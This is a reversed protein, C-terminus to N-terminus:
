LIPDLIVANIHELMETPSTFGDSKLYFLQLVRVMNWHLQKCGRPVLSPRLVERLLTQMSDDIIKRVHVIADEPTTGSNEKMYLIVSNLKGENAERMYGQIDNLLRGCINVLKIINGYDPHCIIEESIKAGVFYLTPLVIPELAISPQANAMYEQLSPTYGSKAWEAEKMMSNLLRYWIERLHKSVDRGQLVYAQEAIQNISNYLASFLIQASNSLYDEAGQDWRRFAELFSRLEEISGGVDFFDDIVTTLVGNKAWVMRAASMEPEFLTAAVSFYCYVLKQRAFKLNSFMGDEFWRELEQLEKQQIAQCLNYDEKALALFFENSVCPLIYSTKGIWIDDVGYQKIYRRSELRELSACWPFRLAYEVVEGPLDKTIINQDCITSNAKRQELFNKSFAKAEKLISEGPFMVQSARYLTLMARVAQGSQQVSYLFNGDKQFHYFVDPSVDYGHLRLLRFAIASSAIDLASEEGETITEIEKWYRYVYDLADMIDDKVYRSIGLRELRDIMSLSASFHIPYVSPVRNGLNQLMSNLYELYKINGTHMLACATASPSNSLSGDKNQHNLVENWDVMKHFGEVTYLLASDYYHMLDITKRQLNEEREILMCKIPPSDFPLELGFGRADELLASFINQFGIPTHENESDIRGINEKIFRLGREVHENAANWVKLAVTCALTHCLRDKIFNIDPVGWSGDPLQNEIIWSLCQPFQPEQGNNLSPVMALWATDYASVSTQRRRADSFLKKIRAIHEDIAGNTEKSVKSADELFLSIPNQCANSIFSMRQQPFPLEPHFGSSINTHFRMSKSRSYSMLLLPRFGAAHYQSAPTFLASSSMFFSQTGMKIHLFSRWFQSNRSFLHFLLVANISFSAISEPTLHTTPNAASEFQLLNKEMTKDANM